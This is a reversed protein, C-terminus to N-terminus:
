AQARVVNRGGCGLRQTGAEYWWWSLEVAAAGAEGRTRTASLVGVESVPRQAYVASFSVSGM